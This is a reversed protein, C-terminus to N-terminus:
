LAILRTLSFIKIPPDSAIKTSIINKLFKALVMITDMAMGMLTIPVKRTIVKNPRLILTTLRAPREKATPITTSLEMTTKSFM